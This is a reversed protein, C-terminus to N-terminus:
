KSRPRRARSGRGPKVPAEEGLCRKWFSAMVKLEDQSFHRLFEKRVLDVHGRAAATFRARGEGTLVAYAGRGDEEADVRDVLGARFLRDVVRSTGSHTLLSAAALDQIRARGGPSFSLRLLVEFEAHTIGSRRRLDDEIRRFLRGQTTVFGGWAAVELSNFLDGM